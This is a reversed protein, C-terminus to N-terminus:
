GRKTKKKPVFNKIFTEAKDLTTYLGNLENPGSYISWLNNEYNRRVSYVKGDLEIGVERENVV